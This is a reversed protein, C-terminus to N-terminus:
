RAEPGELTELAEAINSVDTRIGLPKTRQRFAQRKPRAVLGRHILENAAESVGIGRERRLSEIARTAEDDFDVTTRM